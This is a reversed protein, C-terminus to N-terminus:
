KERAKMNMRSIKRYSNYLGNIKLKKASLQPIM